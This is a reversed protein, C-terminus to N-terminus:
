GQAPPNPLCDLSSVQAVGSSHTPAALGILCLLANWAPQTAHVFLVPTPSFTSTTFYILAFPSCLM